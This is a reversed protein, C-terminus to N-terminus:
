AHADADVKLTREFWRQLPERKDHNGQARVLTVTEGSHLLARVEHTYCQARPNHRRTRKAKSTSVIDIARISAFPVPDSEDARHLTSRHTDIVLTQSPHARKKASRYTVLTAALVSAVFSAALYVPSAIIGGELIMLPISCLFTGLALTLLFTSTRSLRQDRLHIRTTDRKAVIAQVAPDEKSTTIRRLSRAYWIILALVIAHYPFLILLIATPFTRLSTDLVATGPDDPDYYVTVPQAHTYDSIIEMVSDRDPHGIDIFSFTDSSYRTADVTYDFEIQPTYSTSDGSRASRSRETHLYSGTITGQATLFTRQADLQRLVQLAARTDYYGLAAIPLLILLTLCGLNSKRMEHM